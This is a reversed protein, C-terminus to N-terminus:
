YRNYYFTSNKNVFNHNKSLARFEKRHREALEAKRQLELRFLRDQEAKDIMEGFM